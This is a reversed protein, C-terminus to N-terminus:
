GFVSDGDDRTAGMEGVFYPSKDGIELRLALGDLEDRSATRQLEAEDSFPSGIDIRAEPGRHLPVGSDGVGDGELGSVADDLM